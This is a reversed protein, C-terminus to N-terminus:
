APNNEDQSNESKDLKIENSVREKPKKWMERLGFILGLALLGAFTKSGGAATIIGSIFILGIVLLITVAIKGGKSM